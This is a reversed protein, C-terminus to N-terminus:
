DDIELYKECLIRSKIDKYVWERGYVYLNQKLWSNMVKTWGKWSYDSKNKCIINWGSGHSAKLVFQSPLKSFEIDDANEYVAYLTNLIDGFGKNTLYKRVEFKDACLAMDPDRYNLKLWQLKENFTQPDDLNLDKGFAKRYLLRIYEEDNYKKLFYKGFYWNKESIILQIYPNRRVFSIKDKLTDSFTPNLKAM